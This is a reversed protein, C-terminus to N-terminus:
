SRACPPSCVQWVLRRGATAHEGGAACWASSLRRRWALPCHCGLAASRCSSPPRRRRATAGRQTRQPKARARRRASPQWRRQWRQPACTTLLPACAASWLCSTGSTCPRHGFRRHCLSPRGRPPPLRRHACPHGCADCAAHTAHACVRARARCEGSHGSCVVGGSDRCRGVRAAVGVAAAHDARARPQARVPPPLVRQQRHVHLCTYALLRGHRRAAAGGQRASAAGERSCARHLSSLASM